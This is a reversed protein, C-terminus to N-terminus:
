GQRYIRHMSNIPSSMLVIQNYSKVCDNHLTGDIRFFPIDKYEKKFKLTSFRLGRQTGPSEDFKIYSPIPEKVDFSFSTWADKKYIINNKIVFYKKPNSVSMRINELWNWIMEEPIKDLIDDDFVSM